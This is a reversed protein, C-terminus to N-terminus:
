NIHDHTYDHGLWRILDGADFRFQILALTM